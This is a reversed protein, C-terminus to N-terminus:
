GEVHYPNAAVACLPCDSPEGLGGHNLNHNLCDYVGAALEPHDAPNVTQETGDDYPDRQDVISLVGHLTVFWMPSTKPDAPSDIAAIAKGGFVPHWDLAVGSRSAVEQAFGKAAAENDYVGFVSSGSTDAYELLWVASPINM